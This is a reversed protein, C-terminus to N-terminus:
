VLLYLSTLLASGEGETLTGQSYPIPENVCFWFQALSTPKLSCFFINQIKLVMWSLTIKTMTYVLALNRFNSARNESPQLPKYYRRVLV